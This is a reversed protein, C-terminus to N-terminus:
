DIKTNVKNNKIEAEIRFLENFYDEFEKKTLVKGKTPKLIIAKNNIKIDTATYFRKHIGDNQDMIVAVKLIVGPLGWYFEPGSKFSLSPAYWAEYTINNRKATAKKVKYGLIEGSDKQIFWKFSTLSDKILMKKGRFELNDLRYNDKFNSYLNASPTSIGGTKNQSNDIKEVKNFISEEKSTILIYDSTNKNSEKFTEVTKPDTSKSLDFEYIFNYNIVLKDQAFLVSTFIVSFLIIIKKIRLL